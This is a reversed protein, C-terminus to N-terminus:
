IAGFIILLAYILGPLYFLLTLILSIWFQIKLGKILFVALPPLLIAIIVLLLIGLDSATEANSKKIAKKLEIAKKLQKFKNSKKGQLQNIPATRNSTLNETNTGFTPTAISEKKTTTKQEVEKKMVAIKESGKTPTANFDTKDIPRAKSEYNGGGVSVYYGNSHRKKAVQISSNCSSLLLTIMTLASTFKILRKTTM